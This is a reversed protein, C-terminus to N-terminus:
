WARTKRFLKKDGDQVNELLDLSWQGDALIQSPKLSKVDLMEM